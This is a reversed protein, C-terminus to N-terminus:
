KRWQGVFILNDGDGVFICSAAGFGNFAKVTLCVEGKIFEDGVGGNFEDDDGQGTEEM